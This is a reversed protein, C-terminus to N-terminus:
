PDTLRLWPFLKINSLTLTVICVPTGWLRKTQSLVFVWHLDSKLGCAFDDGLMLYILVWLPEEVSPYGSASDSFILVTLYSKICYTCCFSNNLYVTIIHVRANLGGGMVAEIIIFVDKINLRQNILRKLARVLGTQERGWQETNRLIESVTLCTKNLGTM